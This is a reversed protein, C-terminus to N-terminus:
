KAVIMTATLSVEPIKRIKELMFENLAQTSAVEVQALVDWSGFMLNVQRVEKLKQLKQYVKEETNPQVGLLVYALM